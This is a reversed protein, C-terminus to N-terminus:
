RADPSESSAPVVPTRVFARHLAAKLRPLSLPNEVFEFGRTARAMEEPNFGSMFLVRIGNAAMNRGLGVTQLGDAMNVDLVAVQVDDTSAVEEADQLSTVVLVEGYGLTKLLKRRGASTKEPLDRSRPSDTM